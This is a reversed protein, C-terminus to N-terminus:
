EAERPAERHGGLAHIGAADRRAVDVVADGFADCALQPVVVSFDVLTLEEQRLMQPLAEGALFPDDLVVLRQERVVSPAQGRCTAHLLPPHSQGSPTTISRSSCSRVGSNSAITANASLRLTENWVGPWLLPLPMEVRNRLNTPGFIKEISRVVRSSTSESWLGRPTM